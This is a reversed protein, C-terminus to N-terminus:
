AMLGQMFIQMSSEFHREPDVMEPDYMWMLLLGEFTAGFAIAADAADMPRFEGDDIGKQIVPVMMDMYSNFYKNLIARIKENRFAMSYFEYTLPLLRLMQAVDGMTSKLYMEILESAKLEPDSTLEIQSLENTFINEIIAIIIDDKSEYYWYLTGKSLGSEAVIDDMTALHIGKSSFVRLAAETIQKKREASVDPRPAL